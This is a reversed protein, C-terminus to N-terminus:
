EIVVLTVPPLNEGKISVIAETLKNVLDQRQAPTLVQEIVKVHISPM